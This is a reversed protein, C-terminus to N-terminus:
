VLWAYGIKCFFTRNRARLMSAEEGDRRDSYGLYLVTQPNVKYSVLLQSFVDHAGAPMPVAYLSPTYKTDTYQVVARAMTRVNFQYVLRTQILNAQYLMQGGDVTLRDFTQDAWLSLHRGLAYSFGPGGWLRQAPRGNVYDVADGFTVAGWFDFQGSPHAGMQLKGWVQEYTHGRYRERAAFGHPIAYSQWPGHVEYFAVMQETILNGSLDDSRALNLGAETNTIPAGPKGWWTRTARLGYERLDVQPIFGADARFEGAKEEYTASWGNVRDEHEYALSLAHGSFASRPQGNEEAAELPYRTDSRLFQARVKESSLFRAQGDGGYVRNHYEDGERATALLGLNVSGGLDRRYRAVGTTVDRSLTGVGSGQNSPFLLNTQRDRSVFGAMAHNGEKASLKVGWIPDAVTRTYVAALPTEFLDAGELFLPRKEAYFLAFRTNVDLQAVDAEVQSFDPNLAGNLSLNPTVGWRMSLGADTDPDGSQLPGGPRNGPLDTRLATFTPDFELSRGPAIGALGTLKAYQCCQCNLSRDPGLFSLQYRHSRPYNRIALFGWTQPEETRPFRLSSFPIGIEVVYGEATLRGSSAWIADWTADEQEDALDNRLLDGQVGFPNVMFEYARREDNFTDLMVGVFDDNFARDRDALHARIQTPDPDHAVFAFYIQEDDFLVRCETAVPAPINEGPEIEIALDIAQAESWASEDLVGDVHIPGAARSVRHSFREGPLATEQGRVVPLLSLQAILVLLFGLGSHHRRNGPNGRHTAM